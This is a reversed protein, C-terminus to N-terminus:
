MVPIANEINDEFLLEIISFHKTNDAVIIIINELLM